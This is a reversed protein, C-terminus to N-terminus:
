HKIDVGGFMVEGTLILRPGPTMPPVTKDDVGGFTAPMEVVVQWERPVRLEIGSFRASIDLRAEPGAMRAQTLDLEVGGFTSTIRGGKFAPSDNRQSVASFSASTQASNRGGPTTLTTVPSPGPAPSAMPPMTDSKRTARATWSPAGLDAMARISGLGDQLLTSTTSLPKAGTEAPTTPWCAAAVPCCSDSGWTLTAARERKLGVRFSAHYAVMESSSVMTVTAPM